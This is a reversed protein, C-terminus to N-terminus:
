EPPETGPPGYSVVAALAQGLGPVPGNEGQASFINYTLGYAVFIASVGNVFQHYCFSRGQRTVERIKCVESLTNVITDFGLGARTRFFM